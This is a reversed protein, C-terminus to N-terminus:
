RYSCAEKAGGRETMPEGNVLSTQWGWVLWGPNTHAIPAFHLLLLLLLMGHEREAQVCVWESCKLMGDAM